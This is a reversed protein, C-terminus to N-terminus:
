QVADIRTKLTLWWRSKGNIRISTVFRSDEKHSYMWRLIEEGTAPRIFKIKKGGGLFKWVSNYGVEKKREKNMRDFREGPPHYLSARAIICKEIGSKRSVVACWFAFDGAERKGKRGGSFTVISYFNANKIKVRSKGVKSTIPKM